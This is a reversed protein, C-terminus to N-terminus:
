TRVSPAVPDEDPWRRIQLDLPWSELRERKDPHGGVQKAFFAGGEAQIADRIPRAWDPDFPRYARGSEGGVIAWDINRLKVRLDGTLRELLPEFSVFRRVAPIVRLLDLRHLTRSNEVSVGIWVNPLPWRDRIDCASGVGPRDQAKRLVHIAWNIEQVTAPDMLWSFALEPRKTPLLYTHRPTCAMVAWGMIRVATAEPLFSDSLSNVFIRRSRAWGFPQEMRDPNTTIVQFSVRPRVRATQGVAYCHRCGESVPHCGYSWNWTADCWPIKTRDAM